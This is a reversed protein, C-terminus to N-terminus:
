SALRAALAAGGLAGAEQQQYAGTPLPRRPSAVPRRLPPLADDFRGRHADALAEAFAPMSAVRAACKRCCPDSVGPAVEVWVRAPRECGACEHGKADMPDPVAYRTEDVKVEDDTM